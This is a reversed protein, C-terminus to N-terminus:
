LPQDSAQSYLTHFFNFLANTESIHATAQKDIHETM